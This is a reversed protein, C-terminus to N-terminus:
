YETKNLLSEIIREYFKVQNKLLVNTDMLNKNLTRLEEAKEKDFKALTESTKLDEELDNITEILQERSVEV